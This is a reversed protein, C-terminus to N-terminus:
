LYRFVPPQAGFKFGYEYSSALSDTPEGKRPKPWRGEKMDDTWSSGDKNTDNLFFQHDFLVHSTVLKNSPDSVDTVLVVREKRFLTNCCSHM